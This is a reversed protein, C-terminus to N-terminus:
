EPQSIEKLMIIELEMWKSIVSYFERMCINEIKKAWKHISLGRFQNRTKAITFLEAIFIPTYINGSYASM